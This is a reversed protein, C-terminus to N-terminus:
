ETEDEKFLMSIALVVVGVFMVIVGVTSNHSFMRFVLGIIFMATGIIDVAVRTHRIFPDEQRKRDRNRVKIEAAVMKFKNSDAEKDLSDRIALVEQYSLGKLHAMYPDDNM